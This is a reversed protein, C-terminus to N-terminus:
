RGCACMTGSDFAKIPPVILGHAHFACGIRELIAADDTLVAVRCYSQPFGKKDSRWGEQWRFAGDGKIAGAAYGDLYDLNNTDAGAQPIGIDVIGSTLSLTGAKKWQPRTYTLFMHDDSAVIVRGGVHIEVAEKYAEWVSAVVGVEYVRNQGLAPSETFSVVHEGVKIHEIEKWSMDAMLILTAPGLCNDCGPSVKSCGSVPSWSSDTWQIASKESMDDGVRRDVSVVWEGVAGM